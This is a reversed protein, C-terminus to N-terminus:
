FNVGPVLYKSLNISNLRGPITYPLALKASRVVVTYRTSCVVTRLTILPKHVDGGQRKSTNTTEEKGRAFCESNSSRSTDRLLRM